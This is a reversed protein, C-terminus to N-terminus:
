AAMEWACMSAVRMTPDTMMTKVEELNETQFTVVFAKTDKIGNEVTFSRTSGVVTVFRALKNDLVSYKVNEALRENSMEIQVFHM